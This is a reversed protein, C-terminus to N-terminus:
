LISEGLTEQRKSHVVVGHKYYIKEM